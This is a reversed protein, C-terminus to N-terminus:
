KETGAGVFLTKMLYGPRQGGSFRQKEVNKEV